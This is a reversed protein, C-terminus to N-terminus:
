EGKGSERVIFGQLQECNYQTDNYIKLMIPKQLDLGFIGMLSRADLIYMDNILEFEGELGSLTNVFAQVTEPNPLSIYVSRM